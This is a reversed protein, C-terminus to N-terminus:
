VGLVEIRGEYKTSSATTTVVNCVISRSGPPVGCIWVTTARNTFTPARQGSVGLRAPGTDVFWESASIVEAPDLFPWDLGLPQDEPAAMKYTFAIKEHGM